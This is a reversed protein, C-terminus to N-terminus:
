YSTQLVGRNGSGVGTATLDYFWYNRDTKRLIVEAIIADGDAPHAYVIYATKDTPHKAKGMIIIQEPTRSWKARDSIMEKLIQDSPFASSVYDASHSLTQSVFLFSSALVLTIIISRKM